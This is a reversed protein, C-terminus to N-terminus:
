SASAGAQGNPASKKAGKKQQLARREAARARKKAKELEELHKPKRILGMKDLWADLEETVRDPLDRATKAAKTSRIRELIEEVRQNAEERTRAELGQLRESVEELAGRLREVADALEQAGQTEQLRDLTKKIIEVQEVREPVLGRLREAGSKGAAARSRRPKAGTSKRESGARRAQSKTSKKKVM